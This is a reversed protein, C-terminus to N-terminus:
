RKLLVYVAGEGGDADLATCFAAVHEACTGQSLWTAVKGRLIAPGLSHDGKGHIVLVCREGRSRKDRLFALTIARAEDSRMGHLDLRGDIPLQGRRLKRVVDPPVDTRRGEVRQGDDTVEFRQAGFALARLHEHAEAEERAHMEQGEALRRATASPGVDATRAVRSQKADLPVVGSMLRHFSLADEEASAPPERRAPAAAPKPAAKAPAGPKTKAAAEEAAMKKKMEALKSFPGEPIKEKKKSM